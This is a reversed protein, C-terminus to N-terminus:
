FKTLEMCISKRVFFRVFEKLDCHLLFIFFFSNSLICAFYYYLFIFFQLWRTYLIFTISSTYWKGSISDLALLDYDSVLGVQIVFPSQRAENDYSMKFNICKFKKLTVCPMFVVFIYFSHFTPCLFPLTEWYLGINCLSTKSSELM